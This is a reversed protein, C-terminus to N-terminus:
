NEKLEKRSEEFVRQRFPEAVGQLLHGEVRQLENMQSTRELGEEVNAFYDRETKSQQGKAFHAKRLREAQRVGDGMDPQIRLVQFM